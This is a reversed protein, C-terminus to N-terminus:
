SRRLALRAKESTRLLALRPPISAFQGVRGGPRWRRRVAPTPRDKTAVIDLTFAPATALPRYKALALYPPIPDSVEGWAEVTVSSSFQAFLAEIGKRDGLVFPRSGHFHIPVNMRVQGGIRAVRFCQALGWRTDCGNEEWHEMTQNGIVLDFSEDAFSLNALNEVRTAVTPVGFYDSVSDIGEYHAGVASCADSVKSWAGAGIELVQMGETIDAVYRDVIAIVCCGLPAPPMPRRLLDEKRADLDCTSGTFHECERCAPM